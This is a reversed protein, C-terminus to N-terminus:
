GDKEKQQHEAKDAVEKHKGSTLTLQDPFNDKGQQYFITDGQGSKGQYQDNEKDSTGFPFIIERVKQKLELSFITYIRKRDDDESSFSYGNDQKKIENELNNVMVEQINM